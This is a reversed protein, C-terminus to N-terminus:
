LPPIRAVFHGKIGEPWQKYPVQGSDSVRYGDAFDLLAEASATDPTFEGFVYSYKGSMHMAASCSRKCSMLCQTRQLQVAPETANGLAHERLAEEVQNAFREGPRLGGASDEQKGCTTCVVVTIM